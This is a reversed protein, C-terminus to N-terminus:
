SQIWQFLLNTRSKSIEREIINFFSMSFFFKLLSFKGDLFSVSNHSFNKMKRVVNRQITQEVTFRVISMNNNAIRRTKKNSCFFFISFCWLRWQIAQTMSVSMAISVFWDISSFSFLFKKTLDWYDSSDSFSLSLFNFNIKERKKSSCHFQFDIPLLWILCFHFFIILSDIVNMKM